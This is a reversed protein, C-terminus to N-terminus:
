VLVPVLCSSGPHVGESQPRPTVRPTPRRVVWDTGYTVYKASELGRQLQLDKREKFTYMLGETSFPCNLLVSKPFVDKGESSDNRCLPGLLQSEPLFTRRRRPDSTGPGQTM